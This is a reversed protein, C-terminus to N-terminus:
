GAHQQLEGLTQRISEIPPTSEAPWLLWDRHAYTSDGVVHDRREPGADTLAYAAYSSREVFDQIQGETRGALVECIIGPRHARILQEAGALVEPETTETDVLLIPRAPLTTPLSPLLDDDLTTVRVDLEGRHKRFRPNLSNSADSQASLYFTASGSEKGVAAERVDLEVNNIQCGRHIVAVLNPAPEYAICQVRKGLLKRVVVPFYGINAGVDVFIADDDGSLCTLLTAM